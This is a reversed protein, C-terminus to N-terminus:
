KSMYVKLFSDLTINILTKKKKRLKIYKNKKLFKSSFNNIKFLVYKISLKEFEKLTNIIIYKIIKEKNKKEWFLVDKLIFFSFSNYM